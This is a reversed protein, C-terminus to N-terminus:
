GQLFATQPKFLWQDLKQEALLRDEESSVRQWRIRPFPNVNSAKRRLSGRTCNTSNRTGVPVGQSSSNSAARHLRVHRRAARRDDVGLIQAGTWEAARRHLSPHYTRDAAILVLREECAAENLLIQCSKAGQRVPAM